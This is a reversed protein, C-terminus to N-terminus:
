GIIRQDRGYCPTNKKGSGVLDMLEKDGSSESRGGVYHQIGYPRNHPDHDGSDDQRRVTM